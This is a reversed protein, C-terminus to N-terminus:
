YDIRYAQPANQRLLFAALRPSRALVWANRAAQGLYWRLGPRDLTRYAWALGDQLEQQTMGRPEHVAHDWDFRNWEKTRIRGETDLRDFVPTGPYPTFMYFTHADLRLERIAAVTDEFISPPDADFGFIFTGDVLIKHKHLAHVTRAYDSIRNQMVEAQHLSGQHVTQFGLSLSFCGARQAAALLEDDQGVTTPAQAWWFRQLPALGAFLALAYDRDVFLNDDVFLVYRQPLDRIEALVQELPRPRFAGWGVYKLYCFTCSLGCGRTAQVFAAQGAGKAFLDRRPVPLRSLDAGAGGEYIGELRGAQTDDLVREWVPEAEGTVVANAHELCESPMLSPHVGGLVVPVGKARFGDAIEYARPAVFTTCTIGVLDWTEDSPLAEIHENVIRVQHGACLGAIVALTLPHVESERVKIKKRNGFGAWRPSVLLIRM